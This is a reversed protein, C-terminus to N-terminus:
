AARSHAEKTETLEDIMLRWADRAAQPSVLWSQCARQVMEPTPERLSRLFARQKETM